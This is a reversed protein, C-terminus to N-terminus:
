RQLDAERLAAAKRDRERVVGINLHGSNALDVQLLLEVHASVVERVLSANAPHPSDGQPPMKAQVVVVVMVGVHELEPTLGM